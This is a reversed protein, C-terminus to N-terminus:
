NVVESWLVLQPSGGGPQLAVAAQVCKEKNSTTWDWGPSVAAAPSIPGITSAAGRGNGNSTRNWRLTVNYSLTKSFAKGSVPDIVPSANCPPTATATVCSVSYTPSAVSLRPSQGWTMALMQMYRLNHTMLDAQYPATSDTASWRSATIAALVSLVVMVLEILSFGKAQPTMDM